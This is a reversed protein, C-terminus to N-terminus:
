SHSGRRHASTFVGKVHGFVESEFINEPLAGSNIAVFPASARRNRRHLAQAVLEKGTGTEGIILM